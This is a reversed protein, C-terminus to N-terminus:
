FTKVLFTQRSLLSLTFIEVSPTLTSATTSMGTFIKKEFTQLFQANLCKLWQFEYNGGGAMTVEHRWKSQDLSNFNEEFILNGSCVSGPRHTGSVTTVSPNCSLSCGITLSILLVSLFLNM